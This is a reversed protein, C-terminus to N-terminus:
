AKSVAIDILKICKEPIQNRRSQEAPLDHTRSLFSFLKTNWKGEKNKKITSENIYTMTYECKIKIRWKDHLPWSCVTVCLLAATIGLSPFRWCIEANMSKPRVVIISWPGWVTVRVTDKIFRLYKYNSSLLHINQSVAPM